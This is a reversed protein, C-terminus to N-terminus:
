KIYQRYLASKKELTNKRKQSFTFSKKNPLFYNKM